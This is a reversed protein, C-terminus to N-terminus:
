KMMGKIIPWWNAGIALGLSFWVVWAMMAWRLYRNRWKSLEAEDIITLKNM